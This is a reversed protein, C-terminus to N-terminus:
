LCVDDHGDLMEGRLADSYHIKGAQRQGSGLLGPSSTSHM